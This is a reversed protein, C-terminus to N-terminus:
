AHRETKIPVVYQSTKDLNIESTDDYDKVTSNGSISPSDNNDSYDNENKSNDLDVYDRVNMLTITDIVRM